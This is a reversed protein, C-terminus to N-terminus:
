LGSCPRLLGPLYLTDASERKVLPLDLFKLAQGRLGYVDRPGLVGSRQLVLDVEVVILGLADDELSVPVGLRDDLVARVNAVERLRDKRCSRTGAIEEALRAVLEGRHDCAASDTEEPGGQGYLSFRRDPRGMVRDRRM